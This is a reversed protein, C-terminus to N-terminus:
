WNSPKWDRSPERAETIQAATMKAALEDRLEEAGEAGNAAALNLWRYAVVFNQPVGQGKAYMEGLLRQADSNGRTATAASLYWIAATAYDQPVGRGDAYSRGLNLQARANRGEAAKRYWSVGAAYDQAVGKGQEYM